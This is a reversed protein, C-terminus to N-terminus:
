HHAAIIRARQPQDKACLVCLREEKVRLEEIKSLPTRVEAIDRYQTTRLLAPVAGASIYLMMQIADRVFSRPGIQATGRCHYLANALQQVFASPRFVQNM